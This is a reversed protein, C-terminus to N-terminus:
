KRWKISELTKKKEFSVLNDIKQFDDQKQVQGSDVLYIRESFKKIFEVEHSSIIITKKDKYKEVIKEFVYRSEIDLGSLVEDFILNDVKLSFATIIQIKKKMGFSYDEIMQKLGQEFEFLEVLKKKINEDHDGYIGFIFDIYEQGTLYEPLMFDSPVYFIKKFYGKEEQKLGDIKIDNRCEKIGMLSEFFTTKGSGNKGVVCNVFGKDFKENIMGLVKKSGYFVSTINVEIM